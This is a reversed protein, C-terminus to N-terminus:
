TDFLERGLEFAAEFRTEDSRHKNVVQANLLRHGEDTLKRIWRQEALGWEQPDFGTEELIALLPERADEILAGIWENKASVTVGARRHNHLAMRGESTHSKFRKVPAESKGVYRAEQTDPELLAYIYVPPKKTEIIDFDM